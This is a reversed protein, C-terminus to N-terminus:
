WSILAVCISFALPHCFPDYFNCVHSTCHTYLGAQSLIAWSPESKPFCMMEASLHKKHVFTHKYRITPVAVTNHVLSHVLVLYGDRAAFPSIINKKLQRCVICVCNCSVWALVSEVCQILDIILPFHCTTSPFSFNQCM